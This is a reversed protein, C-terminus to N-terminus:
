NKSASRNNEKYYNYIREIPIKGIKLISINCDTIEVDDFTVDNFRSRTVDIDKFKSKKM